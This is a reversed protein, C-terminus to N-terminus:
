MEGGKKIRFKIVISDSYFPWLLNEGLSSYSQHSNRKKQFSRILRFTTSLCFTVQQESPILTLYLSIRGAESGRQCRSDEQLPEERRVLPFRGVVAAVAGASSVRWLRLMMHTKVSDQALIVM